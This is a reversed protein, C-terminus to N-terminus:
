AGALPMARLASAVCAVSVTSMFAVPPLATGVATAIGVHVVPASKYLVLVCEQDQTLVLPLLPM